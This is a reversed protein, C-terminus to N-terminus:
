KDTVEVGKEEFLNFFFKWYADKKAHFDKHRNFAITDVEMIMEEIEKKSVKVKCDEVIQRIINECGNKEDEYNTNNSYFNLMMEGLKEEVYEEENSKKVDNQIAM